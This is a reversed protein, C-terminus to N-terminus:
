AMMPNVAAKLEEARKEAAEKTEGCVSLYVKMKPETGSPRIIVSGDPLFFKMVASAPLGYLGKTYDECKLVPSEGIKDIGSQFKEMLEKMHAAGTIGEYSFALCINKFFGFKEGLESLKDILSIGLGQYYCFMECILFATAVADKDRVYTGPLYGYSEEFGFIYSEPHGERELRAIENGIFKFGTLVNSVSVGYHEAIKYIMDTSVISKVAVPNKPMTGNKTRLECIYNFLLCGMENGSILRYSGDHGRVATGVRDSDPDTALLLSAQYKEAYAMGLKMAEYIEPNPYPCTPFNGDPNKQEEVLTINSYGCDKLVRTVPKLGAGNLPTYVIAIDKGIEVKGLVSQKKVEAIFGEYVAEPMYEIKGEALLSDFDGYPVSFADIAAIDASIEDAMENAIQCGTIDYVKYGNYKAPNHSATMMIGSACHLARVAYSLCPVPELEPYLYVHVGNEALVAAANKSFYESKIRSDYGIAVKRDEPAFHRVIYNALGQTAQGVTYLNMRNTGVGIVGRLGATGFELNRYFADTLADENGSLASLEAGLDPDLVAKEQWVNVADLIKKEM